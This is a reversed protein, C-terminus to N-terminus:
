LKPVEIRFSTTDGTQITFKGELQEALMSVLRLGFGSLRSPDFGAPLGTGNDSVVLVTMEGQRKLETKIFGPGEGPFAYKMANMVLENLILGFTAARKADIAVPDFDTIMEIGKPEDLYTGGLSHVIRVFYEDLRLNNVEGSKYLLNFLNALSDVRSGLKEMAGRAEEGKLGDSELNILAVIMALSNKIRHQLESLLAQKEELAAALAVRFMKQETIDTIFGELFLLEGSEGFIGQGREWVWRTDSGATIIPYEDEFVGGRSLVAQWKDWLRDRHDPQVIDNYALTRNGIFDEPGYGTVSKCGDSIFQMTWDRDNACRYVFGPLNGILTALTRESVQLAELAMDRRAEIQKRETVVDFVAVFHDKQPSYVSVSYWQGLVALNIEFREPAGTTAVRGYIQFLEPNSERIGPIVESVKKGEVGALGTLSTFADNVQLYTFDVPIEGDYHMKCFAFGNLMNSFLFRFREERERIEERTRVLEENATEFEELTAQMEEYAEEIVCTKEQLRVRADYLRFAMRISAALVTDGSNKVVYGYSTIGETKEVIEPDTHSSLFVLPVERKALIIRAAETGDMGKGLNIDMLVLDIHGNRDMIGVAEEGSRAIIVDYGIKQLVVSEAMAILSEDEVLLIRPNKQSTM